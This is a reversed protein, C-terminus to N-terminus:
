IGCESKMQDIKGDLLRNYDGTAISVERKLEGRFLHVIASVPIVTKIGALICENTAARKRGLMAIQTEANACDQKLSQIDSDLVPQQCGVGAFVLVALTACLTM